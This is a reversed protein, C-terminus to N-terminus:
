SKSKKRSKTKKKKSPSEKPTLAVKLRELSKYGHTVQQHCIQHLPLVNEIRYKGGSKRPVIHHLEVPEGNHLSEKCMPCKHEYIKYM